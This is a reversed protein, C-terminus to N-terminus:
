KSQIMIILIKNKANAKHQVEGLMKVSEKRMARYVSIYFHEALLQCKITVSPLYVCSLLKLLFTTVFWM